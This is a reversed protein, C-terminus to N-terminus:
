LIAFLCQVNVALYIKYTSVDSNAKEAEWKM